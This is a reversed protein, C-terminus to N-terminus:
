KPEPIVPFLDVLQNESIADFKDSELGWYNDSFDSYVQDRKGFSWCSAGFTVDWRAMLIDYDPAHLVMGSYRLKEGELQEIHNRLAHLLGAGLLRLNLLHQPLFRNFYGIADAVDTTVVKEIVHSRKRRIAVYPTDTALRMPALWTALGGWEVSAWPIFLGFSKCKDYQDERICQSMFSEQHTCSTRHCYGEASSPDLRESGDFYSYDYETGATAAPGDTQYSRYFMRAVDTAKIVPTEAGTVPILVRSLKRIRSFLPYFKPHGFLHQTVLRAVLGVILYPTVANVKTYDYGPAWFEAADELTWTDIPYRPRVKTINQLTREFHLANGRKPPAQTMTTTM